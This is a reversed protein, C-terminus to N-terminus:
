PNKQLTANGLVNFLSGPLKEDKTWKPLHKLTHLIDQKLGLLDATHSEWPHRNLDKRLAEVIRQEIDQIM